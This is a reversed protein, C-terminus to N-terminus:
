PTIDLKNAHKGEIYSGLGENYEYCLDNLTDPPLSFSTDRALKVLQFYTKIFHDVLKDYGDRTSLVDVVLKAVDDSFEAHDGYIENVRNIISDFNGRLQGMHTKLVDYMRDATM